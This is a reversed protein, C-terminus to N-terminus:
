GRHHLQGPVYARARPTHRPLHAPGRPEVALLRADARVSRGPLGASVGHPVGVVYPESLKPAVVWNLWTLLSMKVVTM